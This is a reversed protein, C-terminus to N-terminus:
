IFDVGIFLGRIVRLGKGIIMLAATIETRARDLPKSRAEVRRRPSSAGDPRMAEDNASRHGPGPTGRARLPRLVPFKKKLDIAQCAYTGGFFGMGTVHSKKLYSQYFIM